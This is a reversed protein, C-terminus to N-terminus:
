ILLRALRHPRPPQGPRGAFNEGKGALTGYAKVIRAANHMTRDIKVKDDNFRYALADLTSQVLRQSDADNPLDVRFLLHGGNGSDAFIPEPWGKERLVLRIDRARDLALEHEKDTASIDAPRVPDCDVPLWRRCVIDDDSTTAKARTKLRNEARALLEPKVPNIAYYVGAAKGSWQALNRALADFDDFYGSVVGNARANPIRAEVVDGPVYIRDIARRIEALDAAPAASATTM